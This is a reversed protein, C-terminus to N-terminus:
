DDGRGSSAGAETEGYAVQMIEPAYFSRPHVNPLEKLIGAKELRELDARATQYAIGFRQAVSSVTVVPATFLGEIIPHTRSSHDALQGHFRERLRHFEQCRRISDKSQSVVGHLCYEIWDTWAGETSVRLLNDVYEDRFQDFFASMYLWPRSHGLWQQIMLALLLRGVRGNGDSFPHIAEFQYHVLFCRVLPDYQEDPTNIYHELDDMLRRMEHVPPPVFRGGSGIQVQLTRFNGPNKDRGRVGHMLVEHVERLWRNCIPLERLLEVGRHLARSYNFVELWDAMQDNASQPDRPDLEYLLLQEPTVYTGEIRSSTIAERTQLPRLLLEPNPLTQGAGNLTGLSEKAAVLLPWLRPEWDWDPPMKNPVYALKQLPHDIAILQGPCNKKFLKRDM